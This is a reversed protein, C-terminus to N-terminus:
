FHRSITFGFRFEGESWESSTYPLFQTEGIGPSNMFSLQFNHAHTKIEIGLGLPNTYDVGLVTNNDRALYYYEAVFSMKKWFRYKLMGGVAFLGNEDEFAVYNRHLYGPAVQVSLRDDGFSKAAILQSYYSFRHATEQFSTPSTPSQDARMSTAFGSLSVTLSLPTSSSQQLIKYKALGDWLEVIPGSGKSRGFGVTIDDTIGYEFGIRIDSSQDLGFLSRGSAPTAIHGFRHTIRLDLTKKELTEVSHGNIVRTDNFITVPTDTDEEDGWSDDGWDDQAITITSFACLPLIFLHKLKM